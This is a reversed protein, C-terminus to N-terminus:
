PTSRDLARVQSPRRLARRALDRWQTPNELQVLLRLPLTRLLGAFRRGRNDAASATAKLEVARYLRLQQRAVRRQQPTLRQRDLARRYMQQLARAMVDPRSSSSGPTLRYTALVKHNVVVRHGSEVIRLWLDYDEVPEVGPTFGGVAEVVAVPSLVSIYIPNARLLRTLTVDASAGAAERYTRTRIGDEGLIQADCTVLGVDDRNARSEDYLAVQSELYEPLWLDDADLIALLEGSAADIARRRASAAGTNTSARLVTVREGFEKAIDATRDTSADDAVIVEWDAYTQAAVSSLADRIYREANFAAVIVSVRPV